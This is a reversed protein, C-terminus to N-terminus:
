TRRFARDMKELVAREEASVTGLGLFGGAAEAVQTARDLLSRRLGDCQAPTLVECLGAVYHLWAELLKKPPKHDLWSDLLATDIKHRGADLTAAADHIAKREDDQIHGDAWAVEVLPVAALSALVAPAIDLEVLRRLIDPNAIGSVEALAKQTHQMRELERQRAVLEADRKLFFSEMLNRGQKFMFESM